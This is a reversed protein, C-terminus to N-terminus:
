GRTRAAGSQSATGVRRRASQKTSEPSFKQRSTSLELVITLLTERYLDFSRVAAHEGADDEGGGGGGEEQPGEKGREEKSGAEKGCAEKEEESAASFMAKVVRSRVAMRTSVSETVRTIQTENSEEVWNDLEESAKEENIMFYGAEELADNIQGPNRIQYVEIPQHVRGRPPKRQFLMRALSDESNRQVASVTTTKKSHHRFWNELRQDFYTLEM